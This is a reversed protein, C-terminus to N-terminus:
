LAFLAFALSKLLAIASRLLEREGGKLKLLDTVDTSIGELWSM